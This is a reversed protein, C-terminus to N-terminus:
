NWIDINVLDKEAKLSSTCHIIFEEASIGYKPKDYVYYNIKDSTYLLRNEKKFETAVDDLCEKLTKYERIGMVDKYTHEIWYYKKLKFILFTHIPFVVGDDYQMFIAKHPINNDEFFKRELEVHDWCIGINNKIMEKPSQLYYDTVFRSKIIQNIYKKGEKDIWGYEIPNMSNYFEKIKDM